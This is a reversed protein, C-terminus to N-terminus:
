SHKKYTELIKQFDYNITNFELNANEGSIIGNNKKEELQNLRTKLQVAGSINIEIAMDIAKSLDGSVIRDEIQLVDDQNRKEFIGELLERIDVDDTSKVCEMTKKRKLGYLRNNLDQYKFYHPQKDKSCDYCNCPIMRDVKINEFTDNLKDIEQTVITALAKCDSGKIRIEIRKNGYTEIVQADTNGLHFICGMRWAMSDINKIYRFMRVMLRALLGKPMFEYKYFLILNESNNWDYIPKEKSLLQPSVFQKPKNPIEYCLEFKKMLSILEDQQDDYETDDLLAEIEQHTFHGKQQQINKDDLIKYVGKTAWNNKLIVLRRLVSDDQFHLFVGLDHFLQSMRKIADKETIENQESVTKLGKLDIVPETKEIEGLADRIAVWKKPLPSGVHDLQQIHFHIAKELKDFRGDDMNSLDVDFVGLINSFQSQLGRLDLATESDSIQNQVIIVPSNDSLLAIRQLWDNFDTLNSRTNNVLIYLSRKTLFFQHTAHYIEQGGFDWVNMQFDKKNPIINKIPLKHIDIGETRETERKPMEANRNELKRALTTKGSEGDGLILLKAEFLEEEGQEDLDEFYQIVAKWGKNVIEPSPHQLPNDHLIISTDHYWWWSINRNSHILGLLPKITHIENHSLTLTHLKEFDRLPSIDQIKNNHLHLFELKSLKQLFDINSIKNFSLDLYRLQTLHILVSIDTIHNNTLALSKLSTLYKLYTIDEIGNARIDLFQLQKLATIEVPIKGLNLAFLNLKGTNEEREREIRALAIELSM